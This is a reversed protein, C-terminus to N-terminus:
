AGACGQEIVDELARLHEDFFVPGTGLVIREVARVKCDKPIRVIHSILRTRGRAQKKSEAQIFAVTRGQKTFEFIETAFNM